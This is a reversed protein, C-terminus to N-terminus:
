PTEGNAELRFQYRRMEVGPPMRVRFGPDPYVNVFHQAANTSRDRDLWFVLRGVYDSGLWQDFRKLDADTQTMGLLVKEINVDIRTRAAGIKVVEVVKNGHNVAFGGSVRDSINRIGKTFDVLAGLYVRDWFADAAADYSGLEYQLLVDVYDTDPDIEEVAVRLEWGDSSSSTIARSSASQLSGSGPTSTGGSYQEIEISANSLATANAGKLLAAAAIEGSGFAQLFLRADDASSRQRLVAKNGGGAGTVNQQVSQVSPFGLGPSVAQAASVANEGNVSLSDDWGTPPDTAPSDDEFSHNELEEVGYLILPRGM